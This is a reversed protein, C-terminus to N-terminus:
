IIKQDVSVVLERLKEQVERNLIETAWYELPEKVEPLELDFQEKVVIKSPLSQYRRYFDEVFDWIPRESSDFYASALQFRYAESLDEGELLKSLFNKDIISM